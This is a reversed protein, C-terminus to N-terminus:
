NPAPRRSTTSRGSATGPSPTRATRSRSRVRLRHRRGKRATARTRGARRMWTLAKDGAEADYTAKPATRPTPSAASSGCCPSPVDPAGAVPEADLVPVQHGRGQLKKCRTTLAQPPRHARRLHRGERLPGQQLVDGITHVDLPIGYRKDKYIGAVEVGLTRLRERVPRAGRRADDLPVIVSRAANTALQDLHMAGVDPGKGAKTAAPCGSTSTPGSSRTTRRDPDQRPEGQRVEEVMRRCPPATAAPSATGTPWHGGEARQLRKGSFGGCGGAVALRAGLRM